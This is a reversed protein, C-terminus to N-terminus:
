YHGVLSIFTCGCLLSLILSSIQWATLMPEAAQSSTLLDVSHQFDHLEFSTTDGEIPLYCNMTSGNHHHLAAPHNCAKAGARPQQAENICSQLHALQHKIVTTPGVVTLVFLQVSCLFLVSSCLFCLSLNIVLSVSSPWGLLTQEMIALPLLLLSFM